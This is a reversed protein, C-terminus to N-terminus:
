LLQFTPRLRWYMSIVSNATCFLFFSFLFLFIGAEVVTRRGWRGRRGPESKEGRIRGENARRGKRATRRPRVRRRVRQRRRSPTGEAPVSSASASHLDVGAQFPEKTRRYPCGLEIASFGGNKAAERPDRIKENSHSHRRAILDLDKTGKREVLSGTGKSRLATRKM